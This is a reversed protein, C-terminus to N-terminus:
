AAISGDYRYINPNRPAINKSRSQLAIYPRVTINMFISSFHISGAHPSRLIRTTGVGDFALRSCYYVQPPRSTVRRKDSDTDSHKRTVDPM